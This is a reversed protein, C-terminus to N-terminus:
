ALGGATIIDCQCNGPSIAEANGSAGADKLAQNYLEKQGRQWKDGSFKFDYIDKLQGDPGDIAVDPFTKFVPDNFVKMAEDVMKIVDATTSIIDVVDIATSIVNVIPIFKLWARKLKQKAKDTLIEKGARTLKERMNRKMRELEEGELPKRGWNGPQIDKKKPSVYTLPKATVQAVM